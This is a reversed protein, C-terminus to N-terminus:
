VFDLHIGGSAPRHNHQATGSLKQLAICIGFVESGDPIGADALVAYSDDPCAEAAFYPSYAIGADLLEVQNNLPPVGSDSHSVVPRGDPQPDPVMKQCGRC